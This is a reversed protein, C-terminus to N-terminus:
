GPTFINLVLCDESQMTPVDPNAGFYTQFDAGVKSFDQVTQPCSPGWALCDKLGAWPDLKVPPMWRNPGTTNDGYPIGKFSYVGNQFAGRIKGTTTEVIPDLKPAQARVGSYHIPPAVLGGALLLSVNSTFRRRTIDM